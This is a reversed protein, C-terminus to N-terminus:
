EGGRNVAKRLRKDLDLISQLNARVKAPDVRIEDCLKSASYSTKEAVGLLLGAAPQDADFSDENGTMGQEDIDLVITTLAGMLFDIVFEAQLAEGLPSSQNAHLLDFLAADIYYSFSEALDASELVSGGDVALYSVTGEPLSYTARVDRTLKQPNFASLIDGRAGVSFDRVALWTGARYPRLPQPQLDNLLVVCVRLNFGRLDGFVEPHQGADLELQTPVSPVLIPSRLLISTAKLSRGTAIVALGVDVEPIQMREVAEAVARADVNLALAFHDVALESAERVIVQEDIPEGNLILHTFQLCEDIEGLGTFPRVVRKETRVKSM